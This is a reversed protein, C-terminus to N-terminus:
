RYLSRHEVTAVFIHLQSKSGIKVNRTETSSSYRAIADFATLQSWARVEEDLEEDGPNKLLVRAMNVANEHHPIMQHMFAVTNSTAVEQWLM